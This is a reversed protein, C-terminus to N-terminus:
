KGFEGDCLWIFALVMGVIIIAETINIM